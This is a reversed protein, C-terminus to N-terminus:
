HQHNYSLAALYLAIMVKKIYDMFFNISGDAVTMYMDRQQQTSATYYSILGSTLGQEVMWFDKVTSTIHGTQWNLNSYPGGYM